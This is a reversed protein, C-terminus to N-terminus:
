GALLGGPGLYRGADTGSGSGTRVLSFTMLRLVRSMRIAAAPRNRATVRTAAPPRSVQAWVKMPLSTWVWSAALLDVEGGRVAGGDGGGFEGGYPRMAAFETAALGVGLGEAGYARDGPDGRDGREDGCGDHEDESAEAKHVGAAGRGVGIDEDTAGGACRFRTACWYWGGEVLAVAEGVSCGDARRALGGSWQQVATSHHQYIGNGATGGLRGRSGEAACRPSRSRYHNRGPDATERM